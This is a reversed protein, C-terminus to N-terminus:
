DDEYEIQIRVSGKVWVKRTFEDYLGQEKLAKTDVQDKKYSKTEYIRIKAGDLEATYGDELLNNEELFGHASSKIRDEIVKARKKYEDYKILFELDEPSVLEHKEKKVIESM